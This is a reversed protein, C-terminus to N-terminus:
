NKMAEKQIITGTVPNEDKNENTKSKENDLKKGTCKNIM